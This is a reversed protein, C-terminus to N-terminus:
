RRRKRLQELRRDRRALLNAVIDRHTMVDARAAIAALAALSRAYAGRRALPLDAMRDARYLVGYRPGRDPSPRRRSGLLQLRPAAMRGLGELSGSEALIRAAVRPGVLQSLNPLVRRAEAELTALLRAHHAAYESRATKWDEAYRELLSGEVPLFSEAARAERGAAREVREEERALTILIEEPARLARVLEAAAVARVYTRESEPPTGFSRSRASRIAGLSARAVSRHIRAELASTLRGGAACIATERPLRGVRRVLDGPLDEPRLEVRRAAARAPDADWPFEAIESEAEGVLLVRPGWGVVLVTAM